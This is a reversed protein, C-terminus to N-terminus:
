SNESILRTIMKLTEIYNESYPDVIIVQAGIEKAILRAAKDSYQPQTFIARVKSNKAESLLKTLQKSTPDKGEFEIPLQFFQYDRCFYAYAPHSVLLTRNKVPALTTQIYLDLADLEKSFAQLNEQFIKAHEPYKRELAKAIIGSQHKAIKPSLWLHLDSGSCSHSHGHKCIGHLLPIGERLDVIEMAPNVSLLAKIAKTEFPEGLRFWIDGKTSQMMEKPSPEYTHASAGAPVMLKVDFLDGAIHDIFFRYPAVSVLLTPKQPSEEAFLFASLLIFPLIFFRM